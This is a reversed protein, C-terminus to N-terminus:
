RLRYCTEKQARYSWLLGVGIAALLNQAHQVEGVSGAIDDAGKCNNGSSGGWQGAAAAVTTSAAITAVLCILLCASTCSM